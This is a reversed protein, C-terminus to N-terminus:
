TSACFRAVANGDGLSIRLEYFQGIPALAIRSAETFQDAAGRGGAGGPTAHGRM